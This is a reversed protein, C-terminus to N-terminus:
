LSSHQSATICKSTFFSALLIHGDIIITPFVKKLVEEDVNPLDYTKLKFTHQGDSIAWIGGPLRKSLSPGEETDSNKMKHMQM